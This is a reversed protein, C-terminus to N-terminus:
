SVFEFNSIPESPNNTILYQNNPFVFVKRRQSFDFATLLAFGAFRLLDKQEGGQARIVRGASGGHIGTKEFYFNGASAGTRAPVAVPAKGTGTLKRQFRHQGNERIRPIKEIGDDRAGIM